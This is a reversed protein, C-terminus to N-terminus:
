DELVSYVWANLIPSWIISLAENKEAKIKFKSNTIVSIGSSSIFSVTGNLLEYIPRRIKTYSGHVPKDSLMENYLKIEM